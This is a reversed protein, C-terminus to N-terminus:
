ENHVLSMNANLFLIMYTKENTLMSRRGTFLDGAESFLRECPVSTALTCLKDQAIKSLYPLLEKHEQWWLLSNQHRPIVDKDVYRRMEIIARTCCTSKPQVSAVTKDFTSWISLNENEIEEMPEVKSQNAGNIAYLESTEETIKEGIMEIINKKTKEAMSPNLFALQKFKPDLFTSVALTNNNEVNGLHEQFSGQLRQVVNTVTESLKKRLLGELINKLGNCIPIMLSSSCYNERSLYKTAEEFPELIQCLEKIINWETVTLVPLKKIDGATSKVAEELIIFRQLMDFTSNWRNPVELLLELPTKGVNEQYKLLKECLIDSRDFHNVIERVKDITKQIDENKLADKVLLNITHALCGIHKWGIDQIAKQINATNDSVAFIVKREIGWERTVRRLEASLNESSHSSDCTSCELLISKLDFNEDIFHATISVYSVTDISTWADTTICFTKGSNIINRISHVCEEYIPPLLTNSIVFKSPLQYNPNLASIFKRFGWDEVM